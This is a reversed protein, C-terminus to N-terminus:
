CCIYHWYISKCFVEGSLFELMKSGQEIQLIDTATNLLEVLAPFNLRKNISLIENTLLFISALQIENIVRESRATFLYV